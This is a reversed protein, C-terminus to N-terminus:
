SAITSVFLDVSLGPCHQGMQANNLLERRHLKITKTHGVLEILRVRSYRTMLTGRNFGDSGWTSEQQETFLKVKRQTKIVM